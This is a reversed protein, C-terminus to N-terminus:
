AADDDEDVSAAPEFDYRLEEIGHLREWDRRAKIRARLEDVGYGWRASYGARWAAMDFPSAMAAGICGACRMGEGNHMTNCDRCLKM